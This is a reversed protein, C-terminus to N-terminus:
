RSTLDHFNVPITVNHGTFLVRSKNNELYQGGDSWYSDCVMLIINLLAQLMDTLVLSVRSGDGSDVIDDM